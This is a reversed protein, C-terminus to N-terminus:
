SREMWDSRPAIWPARAQTKESAPSPEIASSAPEISREVPSTGSAAESQAQVQLSRPAFLDAKDAIPAARERAILAWEDATMRSLGLYDALALNYVRCDLFHNPGSEKWVRRRRGKFVDDALYEATIQQFYTEDQWAGFHCAGTPECEAGEVLRRKRLDAYFQAKLSWTGVAWVTAGDAIKRGGMDIDVTAPTGLAPRSWGDAGKLAFANPRGRTWAYVVHSRFGSDVGFADVRRRGGFADAYEREYVETLLAFAGGNVDTTDGPLFDADVVFSQRDPGFAVIEYYIGNGQVDAAGTMILGIAPVHRRTLEERLSMLRDRDPADGKIEHAIGLTLNDFTKRKTTNDRSEIERKAVVDWPVFPSSLTDFHRSRHRGPGPATAIWGYGDAEASQMLAERQHEEVVAGCCPSVHHANFPYTENYKLNEIEFSLPGGCGPCKVFWYRKDGAEFEDDIQCAGKIVPTSIALDKWTGAKLFTEYSGAIMDHPSGQGGLDDPYESAEDRIVKRRTKGRLDATSTAIGFLANGGRYRKIFTTSKKGSRSVQEDVKQALQPSGEIAPQLKLSLFESLSSDTPEILFLDCPEQAATFGVCMIALTTFGTQKSKRIVEKNDLCEDSFFDLPERLYPTRSLDIKLGAQPGDPLVFNEEAWASVAMPAAQATALSLAAAMVAFASRTFELAM